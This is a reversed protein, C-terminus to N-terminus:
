KYNTHILFSLTMYITKSQSTPMYLKSINESQIGLLIALLQIPVKELVNQLTQTIIHQSSQQTRIAKEKMKECVSLLYRHLNYQLTLTSM